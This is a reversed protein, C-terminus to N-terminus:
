AKRRGGLFGTALATGLLIVGGGMVIRLTISEGLFLWGWLVGFVPILFTVTMARPPGVRILLRYYLVYAVATCLLGLGILALWAGGSIPTSPWTYLTFPLLMLGAAVLSGAATAIPDADMLYKKTYSAAIGYFIPASVGAIVAYISATDHFSLKDWVLVLIGAFGVMLGFMRLPPLTDKLWVWAIAAGWLPTLANIISMTGAPLTMTAFNFFIFPLASNFLGVIIISRWYTRIVAIKKSLFLIPLLTLGAILTRMGSLAIPGFDGVSLRIFLFSSGWIAALLLLDIVDVRRM